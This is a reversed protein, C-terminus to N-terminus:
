PVIEAVKQIKQQFYIIKNKSNKEKWHHDKENEKRLVYVLLDCNCGLVM